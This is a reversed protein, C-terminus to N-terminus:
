CDVPNEKAYDIWYDAEHDEWIEKMVDDPLEVTEPPSPLINNNYIGNDDQNDDICYDLVADPLRYM